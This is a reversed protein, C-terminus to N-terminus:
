MLTKYERSFSVTILDGNLRLFKSQYFDVLKQADPANKMEVFAQIFFFVHIRGTGTFKLRKM